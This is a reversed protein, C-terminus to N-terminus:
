SSIQAYDEFLDSGNNIVMIESLIFAMRQRLIDPTILNNNLWASRFHGSFISEGGLGGDNYLENHLYTESTISIQPLAFQEDLWADFGMAATMEITSYDAGFSCQALFRSADKLQDQNQIPFGDVTKAGTTTGTSSSTTVIVNNDHGAGLFDLHSTQAFIPLSLGFLLSFITTFKM